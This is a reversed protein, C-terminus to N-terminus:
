GCGSPHGFAVLLSSAFIAVSYSCVLFWHFSAFEGISPRRKPLWFSLAEPWVGADPLQYLEFAIICPVNLAKGQPLVCCTLRMRELMALM